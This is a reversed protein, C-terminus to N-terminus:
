NDPDALIFDNFTVLVRGLLQKSLPAGHLRPHEIAMVFGQVIAHLTRPESRTM